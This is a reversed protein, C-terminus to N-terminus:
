FFHWHFSLGHAALMVGAPIPITSRPKRYLVHRDHCADEVVLMERDQGKQYKQWARLAERPLTWIQLETVAGTSLFFGVGDSTKGPGSAVVLGGILGTLWGGFREEWGSHERVDEALQQLRYLDDRSGENTYVFAAPHIPKVLMERVAGIGSMANVGRLRKEAANHTRGAEYASIAAGASYVAMWGYQWWRAHNEYSKIRPVVITTGAAQAQVSQVVTALLLVVLLPWVLLRLSMVSVWLCEHIVDM